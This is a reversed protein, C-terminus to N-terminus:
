FEDAIRQDDLYPLYQAVVGQLAATLGRAHRLMQPAMHGKATTYLV